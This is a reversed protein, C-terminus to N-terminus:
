LLGQSVEVWNGAGTALRNAIQSRMWCPVSMPTLSQYLAENFVTISTEIVTMHSSLLFYDDKSHLDAPRSSFSVTQAAVNDHELM